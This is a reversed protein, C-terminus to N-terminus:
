PLEIEIYDNIVNLAYRSLPKTAPGRVVDGAFTFTSGHCPCRFFRNAPRVQCGLHTCTAGVALLDGGADRVVHIDEPLNDVQLLLAHGDGFTADLGQRALQVRGSQAAAHLTPVSACASITWLSTLSCGAAARLFHRRAGSAPASSRV